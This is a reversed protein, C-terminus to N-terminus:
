RKGRQRGSQQAGAIFVGGSRRKRLMIVILVALVVLVILVILLTALGSLAIM